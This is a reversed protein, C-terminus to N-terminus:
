QNKVLSQVAQVTKNVGKSVIETLLQMEGALYQLEMADGTSWGKDGIQEFKDTIAQQQAKGADMVKGIDGMIEQGLSPKGAEAAGAPGQTMRNDQMDFPGGPQLTSEAGAGPTGKDGFSEAFKAVDGKSAEGVDSLGKVGKTPEVGGPGVGGGVAIGMESM